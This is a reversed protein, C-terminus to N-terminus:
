GLTERAADVITQPSRMPVFHDCAIIRVDDFLAANREKETQSLLPDDAGYLVTTPVNTWEDHSLPREINRNAWRRGTKRMQARVDDPFSRGAEEDLFWDSDLRFRGDPLTEIHPNEDIWSQDAFDEETEPGPIGSVFVLRSIPLTGLAAEALVRTGYSWGVGVVPQKAMRTAERVAEADEALGAEAGRHSPLDVAVVDLGAAELPERVWQWDEPHGWGGHVLVVSGQTM